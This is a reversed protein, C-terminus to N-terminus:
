AILAVMHPHRERICNELANQADGNVLVVECHEAYWAAAAYRFCDNGRSQVVIVSTASDGHRVLPMLLGGANALAELTVEYVPHSIAYRSTKQSSPAQWKELFIRDALAPSVTAIRRGRYRICLLVAGFDGEWDIQIHRTCDEDSGQLEFGKQVSIDLMRFGASWSFEPNIGTWVLGDKNRPIAGVDCDLIVYKAAEYPTCSNRLLSKCIVARKGIIGVCIAQHELTSASSIEPIRVDVNAYLLGILQLVKSTSILAENRTEIDLRDPQDDHNTVISQLKTYFDQHLYGWQGSISKVELDTTDVLNDLVTYWYGM